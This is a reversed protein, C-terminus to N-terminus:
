NVQGSVREGHAVHPNPYRVLDGAVRDLRLPQHSPGAPDARPPMASREQGRNGRCYSLAFTGDRARAQGPEPPFAPAALRPISASEATTAGTWVARLISPATEAASSVELNRSSPSSCTARTVTSAARVTLLRSSPPCSHGGPEVAPEAFSLAHRVSRPQQRHRPRGAGPVSRGRFAWFGPNSVAMQSEDRRSVIARVMVMLLPFQARTRQVKIAAPASTVAHARECVGDAREESAGPAGASQGGGPQARSTETLGFASVKGVCVLWAIRSDAAAIWDMESHNAQVGPLSLRASAVAPNDQHTAGPGSTWDPLQAGLYPAPAPKAGAKTRRRDAPFSHCGM